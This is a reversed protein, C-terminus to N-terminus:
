GVDVSGAPVGSGAMIGEVASMNGIFRRKPKPVYRILTPTAVIQESKALGPQRTIDIVRLVYRGRLHRECLARVNQVALASRPTRGGVFLGFQHKEEFILRIQRAM